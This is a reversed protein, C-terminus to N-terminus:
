ANLFIFWQVLMNQYSLVTIKKLKRFMKHETGFKMSMKVMLFLAKLRTLEFYKQWFILVLMVHPFISVM